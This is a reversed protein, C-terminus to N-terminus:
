GSSDSASGEGAPTEHRVQSRYMRLLEGSTTADTPGRDDRIRGTFRPFRLALGAEPRVTGFAARHIPSLTLEAGRVELVLGPRMWRDPELGTEVGPPPADTEFRRLRKPLEALLADDFGTGVKCFSEFRDRKPDYTALLFAGYFGARRGRGLFGGVVVGDISDSLGATYERKYKIWWFGRAGARYISGERLSKAMVGEGGAAVAEEFFKTAAPEDHVIRQVALRVRETPRLIKELLARREPFPREYVATGDALLVDFAFLCVPVEERLRDLDYKRGRRRSVEQFPLIDGTSSEIPVCEGELIAPTRDVANPLEEILEPFQASIEELRRSFLRVPGSRPLHAQVRLGDYKYELAASGGMRELVDHLSPEREALMPRIPRGVELTVSSLGAVGKEALVGAVLGLDSSLNFAAEVKHRSEKSGDAFAETLADLITMERVGVRLTGLVFRILFKAEVPGAHALLEKLAQIKVDQSGTGKSEAIRQLGSYAATVTLPSGSDHTPRSELLEAATTGLDGSRKAKEAIRAEDVHTAEALARRALSDAMGLEVGEYEPRLMGQSLYLVESLEPPRLPRIIEVLITRAELRRRTGELKEYANALESFKM